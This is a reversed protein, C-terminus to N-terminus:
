KNFYRIKQLSKEFYHKNREYRKAVTIPPLSSATRESKKEEMSSINELSGHEPVNIQTMHKSFRQKSLSSHASGLGRHESSRLKEDELMIRDSLQKGDALTNPESLPKDEEGAAAPMPHEPMHKEEEAAAALLAPAKEKEGKHQADTAAAAAAPHSANSDDAELNQHVQYLNWELWVTDSHFSLFKAKNTKSNRTVDTVNNPPNMTMCLDFLGFTEPCKEGGTTYTSINTLEVFGVIGYTSNMEHVNSYGLVFAVLRHNTGVILHHSYTKVPHNADLLFKNVLKFSLIKEPERYTKKTEGLMEYISDFKFYSQYETSFNADVDDSAYNSVKLFIIENEENLVVAMNQEELFLIEKVASSQAEGIEVMPLPSSHFMKMGAPEKLEYMSSICVFGDEGGFLFLVNHIDFAGENAKFPNDLIRIVKLNVESPIPSEWDVQHVNYTTGDNYGLRVSIKTRNYEDVKMFLSAKVEIGEIRKVDVSLLKGMEAPYYSITTTKFYSDRKITQKKIVERMAELWIQQQEPTKFTLQMPKVEKNSPSSLKVTNNKLEEIVTDPKIVFGKDFKMKIDVEAEKEKRKISEQPNKFSELVNM